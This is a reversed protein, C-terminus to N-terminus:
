LTPCGMHGESLFLVCLTKCSCVNGMTSSHKALKVIKWWECFIFSIFMISDAGEGELMTDGEWAIIEHLLYYILSM